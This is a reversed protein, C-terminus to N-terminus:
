PSQGFGIQATMPETQEGWTLYRYQRYRSNERPDLGSYDITLQNENNCDDPHELLAARIAARRTERDHNTALLYEHAGLMDHEAATLEDDLPKDITLADATAASQEVISDVVRELSVQDNSELQEPLDTVSQPFRTKLLSTEFHMLKQYGATPTSNGHVRVPVGTLHSQTLDRVEPWTYLYQDDIRHYADPISYRNETRDKLYVASFLPTPDTKSTPQTIPVWFATYEHLKAPPKPLDDFARIDIFVTTSLVDGLGSLSTVVPLAYFTLGPLVARGLLTNAQKANFPFKVAPQPHSPEFTRNDIDSYVAKYQLELRTATDFEIDYGGTAEEHQTPIVALGTKFDNQSLQQQTANVVLSSESPYDTM